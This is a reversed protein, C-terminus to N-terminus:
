TIFDCVRGRSLPTVDEFPSIEMNNDMLLACTLQSSAFPRLKAM